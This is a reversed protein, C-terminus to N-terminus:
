SAAEQLSKMVAASKGCRGPRLGRALKWVMQRSVGHKAALASFTLGQMMLAGRVRQANLKLSKKGNGSRTVTSVM